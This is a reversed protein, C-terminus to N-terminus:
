FKGSHAFPLAFDALQSLRRCVMQEKKMVKVCANKGRNTVILVVNKHCAPAADEVRANKGLNRVQPRNGDGAGTVKHESSDKEPALAPSQLETIAMALNTITENKNM